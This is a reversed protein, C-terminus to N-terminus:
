AGEHKYERNEKPLTEFPCCHLTTPQLECAIRDIDGSLTAWLPNFM